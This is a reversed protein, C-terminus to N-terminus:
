SSCEVDHNGSDSVFTKDLVNGNLGSTALCLEHQRVSFVHVMVHGYVAQGVLHLVSSFRYAQFGICIRCQTWYM